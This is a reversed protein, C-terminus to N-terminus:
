GLSTHTFSYHLSTCWVGQTFRHGTGGNQEGKYEDTRKEDRTGARLRGPRSGATNGRFLYTRMEPEKRGIQQLAAGGGSAAAAEGFFVDGRLQSGKPYPRTDAVSRVELTNRDVDYLSIRLGDFDCCRALSVGVEAEGVVDDDPGTRRGVGAVGTALENEDTVARRRGLVFPVIELSGVNASLNKEDEDVIRGGRRGLRSEEAALRHGVIAPPGVLVLFRFSAARRPHEDHVRSSGGAIRPLDNDARIGDLVAQERPRRVCWWRDANAAPDGIARRGSKERLCAQVHRCEALLRLRAIETGDRR